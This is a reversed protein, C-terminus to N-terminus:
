DEHNPNNAAEQFIARAYERINIKNKRGLKIIELENTPLNHKVLWRRVHRDIPFCNLKLYDRAFLSTVKTVKGGMLNTYRRWALDENKTAKIKDIAEDFTFGLKKCKNIVKLIQNNQWDFPYMNGEVELKFLETLDRGNLVLLAFKQVEFRRKIKWPGAGVAVVFGTSPRGFNLWNSIEASDPIPKLTKFAKKFNGM